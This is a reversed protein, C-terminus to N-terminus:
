RSAVRVESARVLVTTANAPDTSGATMAISGRLPTAHLDGKRAPPPAATYRLLSPAVAAPKSAGPPKLVSANYPSALIVRVPGRGPLPAFAATQELKAGAQPALSSAPLAEVTADRGRAEGSQSQLVLGIETCGLAGILMLTTALLSPKKM